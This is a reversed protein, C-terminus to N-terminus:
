HPGLRYQDGARYLYTKPKQAGSLHPAIGHIRSLGNIYITPPSSKPYASFTIRNDKLVQQVNEFVETGTPAKKILFDFRNKSPEPPLAFSFHWEEPTGSGVDFRFQSAGIGPIAQIMGNVADLRQVIDPRDKALGGSVGMFYKIGALAANQLVSGRFRSERIVVFVSDGQIAIEAPITQFELASALSEYFPRYSVPCATTRLHPERIEGIAKGTGPDSHWGLLDRADYANMGIGVMM